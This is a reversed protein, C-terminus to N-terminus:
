VGVKVLSVFDYSIGDDTRVNICESIYLKDPIMVSYLVSGM